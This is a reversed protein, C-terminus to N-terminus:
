KFQSWEEANENAALWPMPDIPVGGIEVQFHLHNGTSQGTDGVLGLTTGREVTQGSYVQLSGSMMHGYKTVTPIGNITHQVWVTEGLAGHPDWGAYLVVGDAVVAVSTGGGPNFDVGQHNVSCGRCHRIGFNGLGQTVDHDATPWQVVTVVTVTFNDRAAVPAEAADSVAISQAEAPHQEVFEVHTAATAQAVPQVVAMLAVFAGTFLTFLIPYKLKYRM